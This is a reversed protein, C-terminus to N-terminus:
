LIGYQRFRQRWKNVVPKSLRTQEVIDNMLLGKESLLIIEAREVYRKELKLSRSMTLLQEKEAVTVEIPKAIRAM